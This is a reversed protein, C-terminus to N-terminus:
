GEMWMISVDAATWYLLWLHSQTTFLDGRGGMMGDVDVTMLGTTLRLQQLIDDEDTV